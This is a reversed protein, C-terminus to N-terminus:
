RQEVAGGPRAQRLTVEFWGEETLEVSRELGWAAALSNVIALGLGRRGRDTRAADARWFPEFMRGVEEADLTVPRNSVGLAAGGEGDTVEVRVEGGEGTYAAANDLLNRLIATVAAPPAHWAATEDGGVTWALGRGAMHERVCAGVRRAMELLAVTEPTGGGYDGGRAVALLSELLGEMEVAVARTEDVVRRLREPEPWRGAVDTMTRLEAIPTRLEHAAADTFRRERVMAEDLRALMGELGATIPTLEAPYAAGRGPLRLDDPGIREVAAGLERVPRLGRRVGLWVAVCSGALAIVGGAGLAALVACEAREVPRTRGVVEVLVVRGTFRRGAGGPGHEADAEATPHMALVVRRWPGGGATVTTFEPEGTARPGPAPGDIPWDPSGTIVRGTDDTLRVCVGFDAESPPHDYEFELVGDEDIVLLGMARARDELTADLQARLSTRAAAFVVGGSAVVVAALGALIWGVLSRTISRM